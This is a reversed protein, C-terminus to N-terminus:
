PKPLRRRALRPPCLTCPGSICGDECAMGELFMAQGKGAAHTRWQRLSEKGLGTILETGLTQALEEDLLSLVAGRVGGSGAFGRGAPTGVLAAPEPECQDVEIGRAVLAAGLEEFTMVRDVQPNALVERRKALCPSLFVKPIGPFAEAARQATFHLPTPTHSIRPALAPLAQRLTGTFAPCCSTTMFPEGAELREQLERAEHEATDQAGSAVEVVAHFGLQKLAGVVQELSADFQVTLSPAVLAVMPEQRALAGLIEVLESQEVIAGFPCAQMCRGCAVCRDHLIDQKGTEKRAIADVPCAEECPVPVRVIANFSCAAQCKGCSICLDPDIISRGQEFHIAQKPCHFACTQAMCGRCANSVFYNGRTCASCADDIVSLLRPDRAPRQLAERAYDSVPRLEDEEDQTNFGLLAMLRYKLIAREQYVCCRLPDKEGRPRMELPIRDLRGLDGGEFVERALRVLLERRIRTANNEPAM